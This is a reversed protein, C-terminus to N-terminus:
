GVFLVLLFAPTTVLNGVAGNVLSPCNEMVDAHARVNMKSYIEPCHRKHAEGM